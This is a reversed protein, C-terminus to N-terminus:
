VKYCRVMEEIPARCVPCVRTESKCRSACGFCTCQHGCRFFVMDADGEACVVCKGPQHNSVGAAHLNATQPVPQRRVLHLVASLEQTLVRQMEFQMALSADLSRRMDDMQSRMHVVEQSLRWIASDATNGFSSPRLPIQFVSAAPTVAPTPSQTRPMPEVPIQRSPRPLRLSVPILQRNTMHFALLRELRTRFQSSLIRSTVQQDVVTMLEEATSRSTPQLVPAAPILRELYPEDPPRVAPESQEAVSTRPTASQYTHQPRTLPFADPNSDRSGVISELQSRFNAPISSVLGRRSLHRLEVRQESPEVSPQQPDLPLSPQPVTSRRPVATTTPRTVTSPLPPPPPVSTPYTTQPEARSRGVIPVPSETFISAVQEVRRLQNLRQIENERDMVIRYSHLHQRLVLNISDLFSRTVETGCM